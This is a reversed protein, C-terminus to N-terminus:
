VNDSKEVIVPHREVQEPNKEFRSGCAGDKPSEWTGGEEGRREVGGEYARGLVLTLELLINTAVTRKESGQASLYPTDSFKMM